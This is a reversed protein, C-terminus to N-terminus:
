GVHQGVHVFSQEEVPRKWADADKASMLADLLSVKSHEHLWKVFSGVSELHTIGDWVVDMTELDLMVNECRLWLEEVRNGPPVFQRQWPIMTGFAMTKAPKTEAEADRILHKRTMALEAADHCQRAAAVAGPVMPMEKMSMQMTRSAEATFEIEFMDRLVDEDILKDTGGLDRLWECFDRCIRDTINRARMELTAEPDYGKLDEATLPRWTVVKRRPKRLFLAYPNSRIQDAEAKGRSIDKSTPPHVRLLKKEADDCFKEWYTRSAPVPYDWRTKEVRRPKWTQYSTQRLRPQKPRSQRSM